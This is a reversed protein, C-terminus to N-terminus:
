PGAPEIGLILSLASLLRDIQADSGV